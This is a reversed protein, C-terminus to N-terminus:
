RKQLSEIVAMAADVGKCIHAEFGLGQVESQWAKQEDSTKSGRDKKMEIFVARAGPLLIVLDSVGKRKGMSQLKNEMMGIVRGSTVKPLLNRIVGSYMNENPVAFHTIKKLRLWQVLTKQQDSESSKLTHM